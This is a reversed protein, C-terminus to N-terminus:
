GEPHITYNPYGEKRVTQIHKTKEEPQVIFAFGVGQIGPFHNEVKLNKLVICVTCYTYCMETSPKNETNIKYCFVTLKAPESGGFLNNLM